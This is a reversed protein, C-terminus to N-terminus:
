QNRLRVTQQFTISPANEFQDVKIAKQSLTFLLYVSKPLDSSSTCTFNIHSADCGSAGPAGVTVDSSTLYTPAQPSGNKPTVISKIMGPLAGSGDSDECSYATTSEDSNTITISQGTTGAGAACAGGINADRANRITRELISMALDGNQKVEKYLETKTNTRVTTFFAQSIVISMFAIIVVSVAVELITFGNKKM